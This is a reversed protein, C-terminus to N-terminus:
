GAEFLDRIRSGYSAVLRPREFERIVDWAPPIGKGSGAAIRPTATLKM